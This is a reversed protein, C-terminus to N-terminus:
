AAAGKTGWRAAAGRQSMARREEPTRKAMSVPGGKLGGRRSFRQREEPTMSAMRSKGGVAGGRRGAEQRSLPANPHLRERRRKRAKATEHHRFWWALARQKRREAKCVACRHAMGSVPRPCDLCVRAARRACASCHTVVRGLRDTRIVLPTNCPLGYGGKKDCRLTM